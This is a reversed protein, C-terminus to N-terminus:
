DWLGRFYKGFMMFGHNIREQYKQRGEEDYTRTHNPGHMMQSMGNDLKKWQLDVVGSEFQDEWNSDISEFAFIMEGMVWDWRDHIDYKRKEVDEHYFDFCKQDEYDETTTTRMYEPVDKLDVIQSGQKTEKLQKLMPLIIPALTSDMGWTDWRDIKIYQNPVKHKFNDIWTLLKYIWTIHRDRDWTTIDGVKPEPEISGHALWEGFKHVCDATRHFGYEDKEKPVWFMLMEALQYPGFWNRPKGIYVKM